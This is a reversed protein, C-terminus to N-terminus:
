VGVCGWGWVMGITAAFTCFEGTCLRNVLSTKGVDSNGVFVVKYMRDPTKGIRRPSVNFSISKSAESSKLRSAVAHLTQLTDPAEVHESKPDLEDLEEQDSCRDKQYRGADSGDTYGRRSDRDTSLCVTLDCSSDYRLVDELARRKRGVVDPKVMPVMRVFVGARRRKTECELDDSAFSHRENTVLARLPWSGSRHRHRCGSEPSSSGGVQDSVSSSLNSENVRDRLTSDLDSAEGDIGCNALSNRTDSTEETRQPADMNDSSYFVDDITQSSYVHCPALQHFTPSPTIGVSQSSSASPARLLLQLLYKSKPSANAPLVDCTM